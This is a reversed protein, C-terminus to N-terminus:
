FILLLLLFLIFTLPLYFFYKSQITVCYHLQSSYALLIQMYISHGVELDNKEIEVEEITFQLDENKRYLIIACWMLKMVPHSWRKEEDLQHELKAVDGELSDVRTKL